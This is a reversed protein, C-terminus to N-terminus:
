YILGEKVSAALEVSYLHTLRRGLSNLTTTVKFRLMREFARKMKMRTSQMNDSYM